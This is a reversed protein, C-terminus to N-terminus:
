AGTNQEGTLAYYDLPAAMALGELRGPFLSSLFQLALNVESIYLDPLM